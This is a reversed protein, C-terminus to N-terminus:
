TKIREEEQASCASVPVHDLQLREGADTPLSSSRESARTQSSAAGPDQAGSARRDTERRDEAALFSASSYGLARGGDGRHGVGYDIGCM